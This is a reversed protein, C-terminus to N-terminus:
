EAAADEAAELINLLTEFGYDKIPQYGDEEYVGYNAVVYSPYKFPDDKHKSPFLLELSMICVSEQDDGGIVLSGRNDDLELRNTAQSAVLTTIREIVNNRLEEYRKRIENKM